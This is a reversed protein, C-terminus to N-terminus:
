KELIQGDEAIAYAISCKTTHSISVHIRKVGADDAIQKIKGELSVLPKGTILQLIQVDTLSIGDYMGTSLAKLVAEKAAFRGALFQIGGKKKYIELEKYAFYRKLTDPKSDWQLMKTIEHDVIDCGIGIIM